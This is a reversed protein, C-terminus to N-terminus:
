YVNIECYCKTYWIVCLIRISYHEKELLYEREFDREGRRRYEREFDGARLRERDGLGRRELLGGGLRELLPEGGELLRERERELDGFRRERDPEGFREGDSSHPLFSFLSLQSPIIRHLRHTLKEKEKHISHM